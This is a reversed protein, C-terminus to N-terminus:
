RGDVRVCEGTASDQYMVWLGDGFARKTDFALWRCYGDLEPPPTESYRGPVGFCIFDPNNGILGVAYYKGNGYDIKVWKSLPILKEPLAFKQCSSFLKQVKGAVRRYFDVKVPPVKITKESAGANAKIDLNVRKLSRRENQEPAQSCSYKELVSNIEKEYFDATQPYYNFEAIAQDDYAEQSAPATTQADVKEEGRFVMGETRRKGIRIGDLVNASWMRKKDATGYYIVRESDQEVVAYHASDGVLFPILAKRDKIESVCSKEDQRVVIVASQPPEDRFYFRCVSEGGESEVSLTCSRGEGSLVILRKSKKM